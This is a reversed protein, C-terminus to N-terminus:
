YWGTEYARRHYPDIGDYVIKKNNDLGIVDMKTIKSLDGLRILAMTSTDVRDDHKGNPFKSHEDVFDQTFGANRPLFVQGAEVFATINDARAEKSLNGENKWAVCPLSPLKIDNYYYPRKLTQIASQGSAKDEILILPKVGYIGSIKTHETHIQKILEPFEVKGRWLDLLYYTNNKRGWTAIVTYDNSVGTKFSSDVFMEIKELNEPITDYYRWWAAKFVNGDDASPKQQYEAYWWSGVSRKIVALKETNFMEPWLAEGPNRGLIDNEDEAIAPLSLVEWQEGGNAAEELLRGALDDEAWRTMMLIIGSEPKGPMLRTYITSRYWEMQDAKTIPSKAETHGKIPDDIIIINGGKGTIPGGAGATNM